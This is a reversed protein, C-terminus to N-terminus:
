KKREVYDRGEVRRRHGYYMTMGGDARLDSGMLPAAAPTTLFELLGNLSGRQPLHREPYRLDTGCYFASVDSRGDPDDASVGRQVFYTRVGDPGYDQNAERQLMQVAGCGASFLFGRGVPKEAHISNLFIVAGENLERFIGGFVKMVCWAALPGEDAAREFMSETVDEFGCLSLPPAPHIVAKLGDRHAAAFASLAAEEWLRVDEPVVLAEWGRARFHSLADRAEQTRLDTIIIKREM